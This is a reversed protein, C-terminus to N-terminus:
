RVEVVGEMGSHEACVYRYTGPAGFVVAYKSGPMLFFPNFYNSYSTVNHPLGGENSFWVQTNPAVTLKAPYFYNDGVTVKVTGDTTPTPAPPFPTPTKAATTASQYFTPAPAAVTVSPQLPARTPAPRRRAVPACLPACIPSPPSCANGCATAAAYPYGRALM